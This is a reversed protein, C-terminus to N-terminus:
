RECLELWHACLYMCKWLACVSARCKEHELAIMKASPPSALAIIKRESEINRETQFLVLRDWNYKIFRSLLRVFHTVANKHTRIHKIHACAYTYRACNQQIMEFTIQIIKNNTRWIWNVWHSLYPILEICVEFYAQLYLVRVRVCQANFLSNNHHFFSLFFLFNSHLEPQSFTELKIAACRQFRAFLIYFTAAVDDAIVRYRLFNIKEGSQM